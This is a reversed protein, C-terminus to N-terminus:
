EGTILCADSLGSADEEDLVFRVASWGFGQTVRIQDCIGQALRSPAAISRMSRGIGYLLTINEYSKGLQEALDEVAFLNQDASRLDTLNWALSQAIPALLAVNHAAGSEQPIPTVVFGLTPGDHDAIWAAPQSADIEIPQDSQMLPEIQASLQQTLKVEHAAIQRTISLDDPRILTLAKGDYSWVALALQACRNVFTSTAQDTMPKYLTGQM